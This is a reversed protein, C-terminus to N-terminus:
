MLISLSNNYRRIIRRRTRVKTLLQKEQKAATLELYRPDFKKMVKWSAAEVFKQRGPSCRAFRLIMEDSFSAEKSEWRKKLNDFCEREKKTLGSLQEQFSREGIPAFRMPGPGLDKELSTLDLM